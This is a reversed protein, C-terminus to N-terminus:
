PLTLLHRPARLPVTHIEEAIRARRDLRIVGFRSSELLEGHSGGLAGADALSERVRAFHRVHPLLREIMETQSSSWGGDRESSNALIWLIHSGDSGDLRVHFGNRKSNWWARNYAPSTKKEQETYLRDSPILQGHPLRLARDVREDLHFFDAFYREDYDTRGEDGYCSRAFSIHADASSQGHGLVLSNGRTGVIENLKCAPVTWDIDGLAAAQLLGLARDFPDRSTM